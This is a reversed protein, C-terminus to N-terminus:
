ETRLVQGTRLRAARHQPWAALTNAALLAIPGILLLAWLALPPHYALPTFGTVLRWIARGLAVGLPVGFALGIVALVSAQTAVAIRTQVRTMGLARLVAITRTIESDAPPFGTSAGPCCDLAFGFTVAFTSLASVEPLARVKAWDFGPQNPLVTATAPLTRAWLRDFASQGRRAGAVAALVTATALAVLVALVLLSRWRRRLESRLWTLAVRM